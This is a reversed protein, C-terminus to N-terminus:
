LRLIKNNSTLSNSKCTRCSSRRKDELPISEIRVVLSEFYGEIMWSGM